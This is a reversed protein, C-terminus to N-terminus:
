SGEQTDPTFNRHPLGNTGRTGFAPSPSQDAASGDGPPVKVDRSSIDALMKEAATNLKERAETQLAKLQPFECLWLWRTRNIAHNRVLAPLKTADSSLATGAAEITDRFEGIVNTVIAAGISNSGQIAEM